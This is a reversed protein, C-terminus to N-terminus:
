GLRSRRAGRQLPQEEALLISAFRSKPIRSLEILGSPLGAWLYVHAAFSANYNWVSDHWLWGTEAPVDERTCSQLLAFTGPSSPITREFVGGPFIAHSLAWQATQPASPELPGSRAVGRRREGAHSSVRIWRTGFWKGKLPWSFSARLEEYFTRATRLSDMGLAIPPM